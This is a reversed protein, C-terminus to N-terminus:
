IVPAATRRYMNHVSPDCLGAGNFPEIAAAVERTFAAGEDPVYEQALRENLRTRVARVVSRLERDDACLFSANPGLEGRFRRREYTTAAAFYLMTFPAFLEFRGFSAYCGAVLEDAFRVENRVTEDYRALEEALDGSPWSREFTRALREIGCLTQAIGTSFLPDIFGATNALAAWNAGAAQKALRQLRGSRKLGGPPGVITSPVFQDAISPYRKLWYSWEDDISMAPDLPFRGIDLTFGASTVGNRFGIQWMWGGDIVHHMTSRDCHYPHDATSGGHSELWDHWLGLKDFHAFVTRSNTEILHLDSGIGLANLLVSAEGTADIAFAARIQVPEGLREGSFRWGAGHSEPVLNTQDLYLAGAAEAERCLFQDVDARLWQTDSYYDDISAAVLLENAHDARPVFPRDPLHGFYSFGRKLGLMVDPYADTATGYRALPLIRPLDYRRALDALVMNAIPTSSEGIAFRPHQGRDILVTSLGIRQLVLSMLSGGFGAGLIAVDCNLDIM